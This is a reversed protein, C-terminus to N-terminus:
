NSFGKTLWVNQLDGDFRVAETHGDAFVVTTTSFHREQDFVPLMKNRLYATMLTENRGVTGTRCDLALTGWGNTEGCIFLFTLDPRTLIKPDADGRIGNTGYDPDGMFGENIIYSSSISLWGTSSYHIVPKNAVVKDSPCTFLEIKSLDALDALMNAETDLRVDITCYESLAASWSAPKPASPDYTVM